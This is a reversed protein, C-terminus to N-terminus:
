RSRLPTKGAPKPPEPLLALMREQTPHALM